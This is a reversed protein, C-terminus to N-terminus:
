VVPVPGWENAQPESPQFALYLDYLPILYFWGSKGIDHMRRAGVALTPIFTILSFIVSLYPFQLMEGVMGLIFSIAFNVLFFTWFESKSSRTKFDAYKKFAALYQNM